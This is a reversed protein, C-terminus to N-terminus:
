RYSIEGGAQSSAHKGYEAGNMQGAFLEIYKRDSEALVSHTSAVIEGASRMFYVRDMNKVTSLRHTVTILTIEPLERNINEVIKEETQSDLSSCAEDMILIKPGKAIARAIAIRQKQGQSLPVVMDWLVTDYGDPLNEIFSGIEAIWSARKIAADDISLHGYAINNRVSDGLVFPLQPALGIHGYISRMKLDRVDRGDLLVRGENVDYLRLILNVITTKGCGSPGILAAKEGPMILFNTNELISRGSEYEFSVGRFEIRASSPGLFAAGDKEKIDIRTDLLQAVRELPFRNLVVRQCLDLLAYYASSGQTIYAMIAGLEGLTLRGKIVLMTGAIGVVGFFLKSSFESAAGSLVDIRLIAAEIRISEALIRFCKALMAGMRGSAKVFYIQSFIRNLATTMNRSKAHAKAALLESTKTFYSMQVAAILQYALIVILIKVNIFCIVATILVIKLAARVFDPLTNTIIGASIDIDHSIRTVYEDSSSRAFSGLSIKKAKRFVQRALGAKVRRSLWGRLISDGKDMVQMLVYLAVGIATFTLFVSANKSLIGRDLIIKGLYPTVLSFLTSATGIALVAIEIKRYRALTGNFRRFLRLAEKTGKITLRRDNGPM